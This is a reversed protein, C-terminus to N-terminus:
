HKVDEDSRNSPDKILIFEVADPYSGSPNCIYRIGHSSIYRYAVKMDSDNHALYFFPASGKEECQKIAVDCATSFGRDVFDKWATVDGMTEYEM